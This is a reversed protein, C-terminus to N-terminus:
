APKAKAPDQLLYFRWCDIGPFSDYRQVIDLGNSRFEAEVAQPPRVFRRGYGPRAPGMPKKIKRNGVLNGSVMTSLLLTGSASVRKLEGLLQSRDEAMALHHFFRLCAALAVHDEPLDIAFASTRLLTIHPLTHPHEAAAVELMGHSVDAALLREVGAAAFAPWFRGTGCPLDLVSQPHGARKLAAVVCQRERRTILRALASRRHRLAYYQARHVDYEDLDTIM